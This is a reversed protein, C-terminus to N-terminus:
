IAQPPDALLSRVRTTVDELHADHLGLAQLQEVTQFLYDSNLGAPGESRAIVAAVEDESLGGRYQPHAPVSVYCLAEVERGDTLQLIQMKEAYAATALERETLYEYAVRAEDAAVRFAVGACQGGPEEDLALVLGPAEPTGRYVVSDLCFKRSYGHLAAIQQEAFAFGPRWMLSGYGFVWFEGDM